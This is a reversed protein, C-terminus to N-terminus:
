PKGSKRKTSRNSHFRSDSRMDIAQNANGRRDTSERCAERRLRLAGPENHLPILVFQDINLFGDLPHVAQLWSRFKQNYGATLMEKM